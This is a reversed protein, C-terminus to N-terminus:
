AQGAFQPCIMAASMPEYNQFDVTGDSFKAQGRYEDAPRAVVVDLNRAITRWPTGHDDYTFQGRSARVYQLTTTFASKSFGNGYGSGSRRATRHSRDGPISMGCSQGDGPCYM